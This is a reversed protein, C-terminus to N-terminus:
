ISINGTILILLLFSPMMGIEAMRELQEKRVLQAHVMVARCADKSERKKLEEEFQSVYQESAGDGNCHALTSNRIWHLPLINGCSKTATFPIVGTNQKEKM